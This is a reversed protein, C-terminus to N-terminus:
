SDPDNGFNPFKRTLHLSAYKRWICFHAAHMFGQTSLRETWIKYYKSNGKEIILIHM